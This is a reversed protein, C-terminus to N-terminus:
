NSSDKLLDRNINVKVQKIRRKDVTKITFEISKFNVVQNKEPIEGTIELILGALTDADGKVEELYNDPIEVIRSFDKLLTKGEFNYNNQDIRIYSVEDVDLEDTIEGVVEELIDELTIIGFTGGYEDIVVAIHNKMNRFEELLDNIKKTEPVFYQQRILKQWEFDNKEGLFPLLDKIYLIGMVHDLDDSYVPIRSYGSTVILSLLDHYLSNYEVAVVDLRPTMIEKVDINGFKVIGKLIKKNDSIENETLALAGSLDDISINQKKRGMRKSVASSSYMLLSSVPKLIRVLIIMPFAMFTAFKVAFRNSYVKPIIESFLLILFTVIIVQLIFWLTKNDGFDFLSYSLYTSLIVVGVNVFNNTILITALLRDPIKLLDIIIKSKRNKNNSINNIQNPTLSFFAVEAGSFCAAAVLLIIIVLFGLFDGAKLPNLIIKLVEEAPYPDSEM